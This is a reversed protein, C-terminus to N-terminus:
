KRDPEALNLRALTTEPEWVGLEVTPKLTAFDYLVLRLEYEGPPLDPPFQLLHLTDVPVEPVWMNTSFHTSNELVADRQYVIKGEADHLRLSTSYVVELGPATQWQMELWWSRDRDMSSLQHSSLKATGQEVAFGLLSIGGDYHVESSELHDFLTWPLDTSVDAFNHIRINTYEETGLYRGYKGLFVFFLETEQHSLNSHRDDNWDVLKAVTDNEAATLTSKVKQIPNLEDLLYVANEPEGTQDLYEVSYHWSYGPILYVTGENSAQASVVQGLEGWMAWYAKKSAPITAAWEQFYIRYTEAGQALILVTILTGVALAARVDGGRFLGARLFRFTEWVGVAALLYIAPVAGIMRLTNPVTNDTSLMAPLLLIWFWLFLLRYAPQRRWRWVAMISGLWFFFTEWLTLMPRGPFNRQWVPDGRFGLALLHEWTNVIFASLPFGLSRETQFVLLQSSRSFFHEPQLIFHIVIPAAVLGTVGAFVAVWPLESRIRERTVPGFPSLFSLGFLFFLFPVFRAPIYTYPLLGAFFGASVVQWWSRRRWGQWLLALCLSLLLPLFNGRMATRGIITQGLSVALLGAGVGGVLLGRWPTAQGTEEDRGFLVQGLWFLVFVSGASALATPLRIALETRGLFSISLAIAYVILGERGHNDPFFAAHDGQLVQLANIGHAGEDNHLGLPLESLRYFRLPGVALALALLVGAAVIVFRLREKKATGAAGFLSQQSSLTGSM